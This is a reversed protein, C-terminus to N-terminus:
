AVKSGTPHLGVVANYDANVECGCSCCRFETGDRNAKATFSYKSCRQSTHNPEVTEVSVGREPAKYAVYEYLRQFEGIHHWNAQPLRERIGDLEEFVIGSCGSEAAETVIDNALTHLYQKRWARERRGLRKMARQGAQTERQQM